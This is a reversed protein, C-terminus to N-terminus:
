YEYWTSYRTGPVQYRTRGDIRCFIQQTASPRKGVKAAVDWQVNSNNFYLVQYKYFYSSAQFFVNQVHRCDGFVDALKAGSPGVFEKFAVFLEQLPALGLPRCAARFCQFFAHCSTCRSVSRPTLHFAHVQDSM